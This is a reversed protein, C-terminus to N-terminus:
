RAEEQERKWAALDEMEELFGPTLRWGDAAGPAPQIGDLPVLKRVPPLMDPTIREPPNPGHSQVVYACPQGGYFFVYEHLGVAGADRDALITAAIQDNM